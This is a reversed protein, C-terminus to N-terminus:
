DGSGEASTTKGPPPKLAARCVGARVQADALRQRELKVELEAFIVDQIRAVNNARLDRISALWELNFELNVEAVEVAKSQQDCDARRYRTRIDDLKENTESCIARYHDVLAQQRLRLLDARELALRAADFDYKARLFALREIAEAKWLRNILDFVTEFAALNSEALEVELQMDELEVREEYIALECAPELIREAADAPVNGIVLVAAATLFFQSRRM